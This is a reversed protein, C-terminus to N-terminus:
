LKSKHTDRKKSLFTENCSIAVKPRLQMSCTITTLHTSHTTSNSDDKSSYTSQTDTTSSHSHHTLTSLASMIFILPSGLSIKQQQKVTTKMSTLVTVHATYQETTLTFHKQHLSPRPIHLKHQITKYYSCKKKNTTKNAMSPHVQFPQELDIPQLM